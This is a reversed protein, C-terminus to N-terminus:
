LCINSGSDIEVGRNDSYRKIYDSAGLAWFQIHYKIVSQEADTENERGQSELIWHLHM